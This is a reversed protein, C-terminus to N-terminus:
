PGVGAAVELEAVQAQLREVEREAVDARVREENCALMMSQLAHWREEAHGKWHDRDATLRDVVASWNARECEDRDKWWQVDATLRDVEALLEVVDQRAHAIFEADAESRGETEVYAVDYLYGGTRGREDVDTGDMAEFGPRMRSVCWAPDAGDMLGHENAASWPGPTAEFLRDRIEALREPTLGHTANEVPGSGATM